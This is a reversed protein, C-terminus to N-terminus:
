GSAPRIPDGPALSAHVVLRRLYTARARDWSGACTILSMSPPGSATFLKDDAADFSLMSTSDVVFQVETGDARAVSVSDGPRLKRLNYFVAQPTGYWDLHGDLLANGADGPAVGTRYWGVNAPASPAAIRGQADLGVSEVTANVGIAPIALRVPPAAPAVIARARRLVEDDTPSPAPTAAAARSGGAGRDHSASPSRAALHVGALAVLCGAVVVGLGGALLRVPLVPGGEMGRVAAGCYWDRPESEM